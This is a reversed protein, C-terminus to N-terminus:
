EVLQLARISGASNAALLVPQDGRFCVASIFHSPAPPGGANRADRGGGGGGGGGGGAAAAGGGGAGRRAAVGEGGGGRAGGGRADNGAGDGADSVRREDRRLGEGDAFDYAVVPRNVSKHYVFVENTESGCAILDNAGAALGVFNRENVHGELVGSPALSAPPGSPARSSVMARVDWVRMTSDTSASVLEEGASLFRAYSVAKRHGGLSAVPLKPFRLDFLHVRHDACGVALRHADDPGYQACCVNARLDLELVSGEQSTSWIKVRGDDSGSALLRHDVRCYDVSWARKDHEEFEAVATKTEANWVTVVGEYDSTAVHERVHKNFSLCSLKSRTTITQAPAAGFHHQTAAGVRFDGRDRFDCVDRFDFVHVRKSVEATAFFDLDRDFEISSVVAGQGGGRAPGALADDQRVEGVVRMRDYRTFGAVSASFAELDRRASIRSSRSSHEHENAASSPKSAGRGRAEGGRLKAYLRQLDGFHEAIKARKSESVAAAALAERRREPGMPPAESKRTTRDARGGGFGGPGRGLGAAADSDGNKGGDAPFFLPPSADDDPDVAPDVVAPDVAGGEASKSSSGSGLRDLTEPSRPGRESPKSPAAGRMMDMSSRKSGASSARSAAAQYFASNRAALNRAALNRAALNRAAATKEREKEKEKEKEDSPAALASQRGREDGNIGWASLMQCVAAAARTKNRSNAGGRTADAARAADAPTGASSPAGGRAARPNAPDLAAAIEQDFADLADSGGLEAVRAEVWALDADVSAMEREIADVAENKRRHSLALFDRLVNMSVQRDDMVLKKHTDSVVRLLPGLEHLPLSTAAEALESARGRLADPGVGFDRSARPSGRSRAGAGTLDGSSLAGSRSLGRLLKDLAINPFLSEATLPQACCPCARGHELHRTICSFCFTHGCLTSSFADVYTERCIPCANLEEESADMADMTLATAAM